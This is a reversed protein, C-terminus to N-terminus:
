RCTARGAGASDRRPPASGTGGPRTTPDSRSRTGGSRHGGRGRRRSAGRTRSARLAVRQVVEDDVVLRALPDEFREDSRGLLAEGLFRDAAGDVQELVVGVRGAVRVATVLVVEGAPAVVEAVVGLHQDREEDAALDVRAGALDQLGGAAGAVRDGLAGLVDPFAHARRGRAAPRDDVGAVFRVGIGLLVAPQVDDDAVGVHALVRREHLDTRGGAHQPHELVVVDHQAVHRELVRDPRDALDAVVHRAPSEHPEGVPALHAGEVDLALVEVPRQAVGVRLAERRELLLRELHPLVADRRELVVRHLEVALDVPHDLVLQDLREAFAM